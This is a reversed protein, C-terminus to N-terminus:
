TAARSLRGISSGGWIPATTVFFQPLRFRSHASRDLSTAILTECGKMYKRVPTIVEAAATM